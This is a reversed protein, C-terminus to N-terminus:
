FFLPIPFYNGIFGSVILVILILLSKGTMETKDFIKLLKRTENTLFVPLTM